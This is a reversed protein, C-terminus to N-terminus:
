TAKCSTLTTPRYGACTAKWGLSSSRWAATRLRGREADFDQWGIKSAMIFRNRRGRMAHGLLEESHGAGYVDATDFFTVGVNLAYEIADLVTRDDTPGVPRRWRGVFEDRDRDRCHWEQRTYANQSGDEHGAMRKHLGLAHARAVHQKTGSPAQQFRCTIHAIAPRESLVRCSDSACTLHSLM